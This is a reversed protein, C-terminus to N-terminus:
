EDEPFEAAVLEIIEHPILGEEANIKNAADQALRTLRFLSVKDLTIERSQEVVLHTILFSLAEQPTIRSKAM